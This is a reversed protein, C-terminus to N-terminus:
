RSELGFNLVPAINKVSFVAHDSEKLCLCSDSVLALLLRM